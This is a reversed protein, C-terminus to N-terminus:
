LLHFCKTFSFTVKRTTWSLPIPTMKSNGRKKKKVRWIKIILSNEQSSRWFIDLFQGRRVIELGLHEWREGLRQDGSKQRQGEITQERCLPWLKGSSFCITDKRHKLCVGSLNLAFNKSPDQCSRGRGWRGVKIEKSMLWRGAGPFLAWPWSAM